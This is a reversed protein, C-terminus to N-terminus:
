SLIVVLSYGPSQLVGPLGYRLDQLITEVRPFTWAEQAREQILTTNGFHQRTEARARDAPIGQAVREDTELELNSQIEAALDDALTRRGRLARLLKSWRERM